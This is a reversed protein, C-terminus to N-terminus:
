HLHGAVAARAAGPASPHESDLLARWVRHGAAVYRRACEIFAARAAVDVFPEPLLPDFVVQRIAKGGLLFAERAAVDLDLEPARALWDELQAGLTRYTDSLAEGDWLARIRAEQEADFGMAVFVAASPEVGLKTLRRRVADVNGEVNDPRMYLSKDWERFGLMELARERRALATRDVRGLSICSVMLYAGSWRRLRSEVTRWATLEESLEVASPGLRYSGREAGEVLSEAALRALAVRVSNETLGFLRCAIIAERVQLPEGDKAVLLDLILHKATPQTM